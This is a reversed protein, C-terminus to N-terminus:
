QEPTDKKKFRLKVARQSRNREERELRPLIARAYENVDDGDDSNWLAFECVRTLAELEDPTLYQQFNSKM